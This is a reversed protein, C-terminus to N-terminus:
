SFGKAEMLSFGEIGIDRGQHSCEIVGVLALGQSVKADLLIFDILAKHILKLRVM